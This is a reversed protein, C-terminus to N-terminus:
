PVYAVGVCDLGSELRHGAFYGGLVLQYLYDALYPQQFPKYRELDARAALIVEMLKGRIEKVLGQKEAAELVQRLQASTVYPIGGANDEAAKRLDYIPAKEFPLQPNPSYTGIHLRGKQEFAALCLRPLFFEGGQVIWRPRNQVRLDNAMDDLRPIGFDEAGEPAPEAELLVTLLWLRLAPAHRSFDDIGAKDLM